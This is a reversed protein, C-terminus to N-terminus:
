EAALQYASAQLNFLGAYVGDAAMLADHDGEEILRGHDLVYIRDASRVSAMRHTILVVTRGAALRRLREYVAHEARADLNATPEDCILIAADRYFARAVALRQWQGGSLDAGDTFHRSLLTDYGRALETIFEHADGDRAAAEVGAPTHPREHRGITINERASFPWQTPDQMVVAVQDRVSDPDVTALDVGDWRIVGGEPRYLGALLKALTTKGSGNEGVLAIVEGRRVTLTVDDVAPRDAGPYCLSVHRLEILAPGHPAAVAPAPEARRQALDCFAQYSDFYLGHEYIHNVTFAVQTLAGIGVSIAYAAAGGVALDMRGTMLLWVLVAYAVGTALAGLAAGVLNGRVQANSLRVRERAMIGLLRRVEGLLYDRLTFARLEPGSDRDALLDSLMWKRRMMTFQRLYQRYEMRASRVAAWGNPVVALVLLPLLVPHLAALVGAASCLRVANAVLEIAMDVLRQAADIGRDRARGMADRFDADDFTSLDVRTTLDMLRVEAERSVQPSLRGHAATAAFTLASRVATMAILLLLSPIAARVREPTPAARLLGDLVGVVSALGFGGAVGSALQATVLVATTRRDTSWALRWARRLLGPLRRAMTLFSASAAEATGTLWYPVALDAAIEDEPEADRTPASSVM